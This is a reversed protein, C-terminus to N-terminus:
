ARAPTSNRWDTTRALGGEASSSQRIAQATLIFNGAPASFFLKNKREVSRAITVGHWAVVDM